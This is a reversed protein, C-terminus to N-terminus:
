LPMIQALMTKTLIHCNDATCYKIYLTLMKTLSIDNGEDVFLTHCKAQRIGQIVEEEAVFDVNKMLQFFYNKSRWSRPLKTYKSMLDNIVQCSTISSNQRVTSTLFRTLLKSRALRKEITPGLILRRKQLKYPSMKLDNHCIRHMTRPSIKLKKAMKRM